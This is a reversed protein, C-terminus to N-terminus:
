PSDAYRWAMDGQRYDDLDIVREGPPLHATYLRGELHDIEHLALRAVAREFSEVLARGALDLYQVRIRLPRPVRGRVDFVSLCGEFQL